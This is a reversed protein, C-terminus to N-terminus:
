YEEYQLKDLIDILDHKLSTNVLLHEDEEIRFKITELLTDKEYQDLTLEMQKIIIQTLSIYLQPNKYFFNQPFKKSPRQIRIPNGKFGYLTIYLFKFRQFTNPDQPYFKRPPNKIESAKQTRQLNPYNANKLRLPMFVCCYILFFLQTKWLRCNLHVFYLCIPTLDM